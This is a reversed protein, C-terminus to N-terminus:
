RRNTGTAGIREAAAQKRQATTGPKAGRPRNGGYRGDSIASGSDQMALERQKM